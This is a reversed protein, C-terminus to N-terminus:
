EVCLRNSLSWQPVIYSISYKCETYDIPIGLYKKLTNKGYKKTEWELACLLIVIKLNSLVLHYNAKDTFNYYSSCVLVACYIFAMYMWKSPKYRYKLLICGTGILLINELANLLTSSFYDPLLMIAAFMFVILKNVSIKM